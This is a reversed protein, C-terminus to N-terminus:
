RSDMLVTQPFPSGVVPTLVGNVGISFVAISNGAQNAVFVFKGASDVAVATPRAGTAFPSGPVATLMGTGTNVSFASLTNAAQNNVFLLKHTPDFAM